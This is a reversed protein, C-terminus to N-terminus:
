FCKVTFNRLKLVGLINSNNVYFEFLSALSSTKEDLLHWHFILLYHLSQYSQEELLLRIETQVTQESMDTRFSLTM